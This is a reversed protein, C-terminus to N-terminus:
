RSSSPSTVKDVKAVINENHTLLSFFKAVKKLGPGLIHLIQKILSM